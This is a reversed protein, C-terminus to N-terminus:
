APTAGVTLVKVAIRTGDVEYTARFNGVRLRRLNTGGLKSSTSPEPDDGLANVARVFPKVSEGYKARLRKLGESAAHEWIVTHSM